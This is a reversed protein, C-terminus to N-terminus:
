NEAHGALARALADIRAPAHLETVCLLLGEKLEPYEAGVALGAVIGAKRARAQAAAADPVDVVFENFTPGTFALKLGHKALSERLYRARRYNVLALERLGNKGLCALHISAALACLGHNTCINSTAKERRIHQERTSLTLVFGRRGNRDVTAGCLRGPMARVFEEKAAFFGLGPGGFSPGNGFSQMEGVCLDAGLAGPAQLLGLSLAESTVSVLLAGKAHAAAALAPLDEVVGFFNPYGAIVAAAGGELSARLGAGDVRGDRGFGTEVYEAGANKLYTRITKRYEPHLSRAVVVRRSGKSLRLAMLAAEAAATAGDYMSANAVETGTLMAVMTQFEFIVQLTGQAIEPQYPTYATYFESRLLLQDVIPPVHHPYAGAGLFPASVDNRVALSELEAMLEAEHMPEPLALPRDLRVAEPISTFLADVSPAGAVALMAQVDDPTHPLYRM